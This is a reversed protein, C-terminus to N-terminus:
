GPQCQELEAKVTMYVHSRFRLAILVKHIRMSANVTEKSPKTM